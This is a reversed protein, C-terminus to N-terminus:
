KEAPAAPAQLYAFLDRVQAPTLKELVREPMLSLLAPEITEVVAADVTVRNVQADVLTVRQPSQEVILGTLSRGDNTQVVYSLFEKRIVASPDVIQTLLYERDHRNASTLEPGVAQGEDFLRHCKGCHERFLVRGQRADGAAARLDNNLRRVEALREGPSAAGIQGWHRRVLEDLRSSQFGAVATLAAVPVVSSAVQGNDVAELLRAASEGRSLLLEIAATQLEPLLGPLLALLRVGIQPDDYGALARLAAKRLAPSTEEEFLQLLNPLDIPALLRGLLEVMAVRLPAATAAGFALKRAQGIADADGVRAAFQLWVEDTLNRPLQSALWDNLEAPPQTLNATLGANAGLLVERVARDDPASRLLDSLAQWTPPSQAAAWRRALRAALHQRFVQSHWAESTSWRKSVTAVETVAHPEIAWWLLLPIQVDAADRDTAILREVIALGVEPPLRRATSALQSRVDVDPEQAALELLADSWAPDFPSAQGIWRVIWRRLDADRDALLEAALKRDLQDCSLLTWLAQLRTSSDDSQTVLDVLPSPAAADARAVLLRRAQRRLWDDAQAHLRVLEDTPLRALDASPAPPAGRFRVRYVRGNTRDWEADPDPHATRADHWDAFYVAGDPGVTLDCPACWPDNAEVLTGAFHASFTSGLRALTHWDVRHSLLNATIMASRFEPPFATGQYCIGGCTVHGGHLETHPIHEFYGYAHPNHLEGHKGFSKWYYGGQVGHLLAYGGVNTCAILHGHPDFDVGWTNGGGEYFLEFRDTARHYRWVGQQFEIGRIHSTVTSGQCGYLWGDPGFILSNAVSHADEMGFGSLLVEPDGDPVDDRNRDAYFLLYPVQLVYVGGHGFCLGTALNLGDVFDHFRDARGDGDTDECITIRDAGRPGRPPPEPVRDYTTRSYRDWAVRKLGAPNPYQLYQIVWLRGREDFEIAVPQRIDPESAVVEAVFGEPLAMREVALQPSLQEAVAACALGICLGTSLLM